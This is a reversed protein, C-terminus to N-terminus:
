SRGHKKGGDFTFLYPYILLRGLDLGVNRNENNPSDSIQYRRLPPLHCAVGCEILHPDGQVHLYEDYNTTVSGDNFPVQRM